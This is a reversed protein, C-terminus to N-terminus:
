KSKEDLLKEFDASPMPKAFYYGQVSSCDVTQLFEVQDEYEIGEAVVKSGLSTVLNIIGTLMTKAPERDKEDEAIFFSRDLKVVDFNYEKLMGLSSHGSGFDDISVSFGATHLEDLVQSLLGINEIVTTETLEVELLSTPVNHKNAIEILREVFDSDQLHRRSFNVSIPVCEKNERLRNEILICASEFIHHDLTTIFDNKEFLPIFEGPFVIGGDNEFWRVLAEAGVINGKRPNYKPQLFMKFEQNKLSDEMKNTIESMRLMHKKFKDDYDWITWGTKERAHSHAISVKNVMEDVDTEGPELFYRGYRFNFRHKELEPISARLQNIYKERNLFFENVKTKEAFILLEDSGTRAIKFLDGRMKEAVKASECIVKDGIEIGFVENIIKFNEIDGKLLVYKTCDFDSRSVIEKLDMKFKILNSVGTLDDYYAVQQIEAYSKKRVWLIYITLVIFAILLSASVVLMGTTIANASESLSSESIEFFLMWDGIGLPIYKGLKRDDGISFTTEGEKSNAFDELVDEYTQGYEFTAEKFNEFSIPFEYTHLMIEGQSNVIMAAGRSDTVGILLNALKEVDYEAVIVGQVSGKYYIPAAVSIVTSGTFKSEYVNTLLVEGKSAAEFYAEQSINALTGESTTGNGLTDTIILNDIEYEKTWIKMSENLLERDEGIYTIVDVISKVNDQKNTMILLIARSQENAMGELSAKASTELEKFVMNNFWFVAAINLVAILLVISVIRIQGSKSKM